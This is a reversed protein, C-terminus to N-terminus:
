TTHTAQPTLVFREIAHGVGNDNNSETVYDAGNRVAAPANQMAVGIGARQIMELDNFSDGFSLTAEAPIDLHDLIFELATGKNVDLPLIEVIENLGTRLVQARGEFQKALTHQFAAVADLDHASIFLVKDPYCCDQIAASLDPVIRPHPEHHDMLLKVNADVKTALLDAGSYVVTVLGADNAMQIAELAIDLPISDQHMM